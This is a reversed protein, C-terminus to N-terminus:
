LKGLPLQKLNQFIVLAQRLIHHLAHCLLQHACQVVQVPTYYGVIQACLMTCCFYLIHQLTNSLLQHASQVVQLPLPM